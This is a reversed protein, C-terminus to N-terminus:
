GRTFKKYKPNINANEMTNMCGTHRTIEITHANIYEIIKFPLLATFNLKAKRKGVISTVASM